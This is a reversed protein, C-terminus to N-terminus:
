TAPSLQAEDATNPPIMITVPGVTIAGSNRCARSLRLGACNSCHSAITLSGIPARAATRAKSTTSTRLVDSVMPVAIQSMARPITTAATMPIAAPQITASAKRRAHTGSYMFTGTSNAVKSITNARDSETNCSLPSSATVTIPM